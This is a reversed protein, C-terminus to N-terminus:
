NMGEPRCEPQACQKRSDTELQEARCDYYAAWANYCDRQSGSTREAQKRYAAAAKRYYEAQKPDQAASVQAELKTTAARADVRKSLAAFAILSVLLLALLLAGWMKISHPSFNHRFKISM